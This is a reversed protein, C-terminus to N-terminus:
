YAGARCSFPRRVRSRRLVRGPLFTKKRQVPAQSGLTVSRVTCLAHARSLPPEVPVSKLRPSVCALRGRAFGFCCLCPRPIHLPGQGSALRAARAFALRDLLSGTTIKAMLSFVYHDAGDAAPTQHTAAFGRLSAPTGIRSQSLEAGHGTPGSAADRIEVCVM